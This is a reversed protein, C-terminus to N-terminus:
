CRMVLISCSPGPSSAHQPMCFPLLTHRCGQRTCALGKARARSGGGGFGAGGLRVQSSFGAGALQQLAAQVGADAPSSGMLADDTTSPSAPAAVSAGSLRAPPLSGLSARQPSPGPSLAAFASLPSGVTAARRKAEADAAAAAAASALAEPSVFPKCAPVRLEDLSLSPPPPALVTHAPPWLRAPRLCTPIHLRHPRPLMCYRGASGGRACRHAFFCIKRKCNSGDNCLQTRYRTPHLWYEFVNHAYPCHDGFACCGEQLLPPAPTCSPYPGQPRLPM